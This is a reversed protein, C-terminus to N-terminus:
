KQDVCFDPSPWKPRPLKEAIM